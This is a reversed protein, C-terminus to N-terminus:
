TPSFGWGLERLPLGLQQENVANSKLMQRSVLRDPNKCYSRIVDITYSTNLEAQPASSFTGEPTIYYGKFKSNKEPNSLKTESIKDKVEKTRPVGFNPNDEGKPNISNGTMRESLANCWEKSMKKGKHLRSNAKAFEKKATEFGRSTVKYTRKIDGSLQNNMAWFAFKLKDSNPYIKCLIRHLIYHVRASVYVLNEKDDDGGLCKPLIHHRESYDTPKEKLGYFSILKSYLKNYNM